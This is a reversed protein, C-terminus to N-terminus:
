HRKIPIWRYFIRTATSALVGFRYPLDQFPLNLKLRMLVLLFEQFQCLANMPTTSIKPTLLNFVHILMLYSPLGSYFKTKQDNDKFGNQSIQLQLATKKWDHLETTISQIYGHQPDFDALSMDTQCSRDVVLCNDTQCGKTQPDVDM